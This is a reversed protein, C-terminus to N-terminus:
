VPDLRNAISEGRIRREVINPSIPKRMPRRESEIVQYDILLRNPHLAVNSWTWGIGRVRESM